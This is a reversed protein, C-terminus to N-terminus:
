NGSASEVANTIAAPNDRMEVLVLLQKLEKIRMLDRASVGGKNPKNVDVGEEILFRATNYDRERITRHLITEGDILVRNIDAGNSLLLRVTDYKRTELAHDLPTHDNDNRLDAMNPLALFIELLEDQGNRAAIHLPSINALNFIRPDAGNELLFRISAANRRRVAKHLPTDGRRDYANIAAGQELLTGAMPLDDTEIARMLPTRYAPDRRDALEGAEILMAIANTSQLSVAYHIPPVGDAAPLGPDVGNDLLVGLMPLNLLSAIVPNRGEADAGILDAGNTLLVGVAEPRNERFAVMMLTPGDRGDRKELLLPNATIREELATLNGDRLLDFEDEGRDSYRALGLGMAVLLLVMLFVRVIFWPVRDLAGPNHHGPDVIRKASIYFILLGLWGLALAGTVVCAMLFSSRDSAYELQSWFYWISLMGLFVGVATLKLSFKLRIKVIYLDAM